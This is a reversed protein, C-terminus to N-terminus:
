IAVKNLGEFLCFPERSLFAAEAGTLVRNYIMVNGIKGNAYTADDRGIWIAHTLNEVAEFTDNKDDGSAVISGNIYLKIGASLIGGNYTMVIHSWKAQCATTVAATTLQGIYCDAISEDFFHAYLKDNADTALLWEGDTNYIGKTIIPFSTADDMNVWVSISLPTLAPTFDAHDAVAVYDTAGDFYLAHGHKSLVFYAARQQAGYIGSGYVGAGYDNPQMGGLISANRHKGSMDLIQLGTPGLFSAWVGILGKRLEPYKCEGSHRAFGTAYSPRIALM